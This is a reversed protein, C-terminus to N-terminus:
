SRTPSSCSATPRALECMRELYGAPPVVVGGAGQIPEAVFAAINQAGLEAIKRRSNPARPFRHVPEREDRGAAPVSVAGFPPPHVRGCVQFAAHSRRRSPRRLHRPLDLRPLLEQALHYATELGRRPALSLLARAQHRQGDRVLRVHFLLCPEDRGSRDRRARRRTRDGARQGHGRIFEFVAATAGARGDCRRTRRARLRHQRVVHRRHRRPLAQRQHRHHARGERRHRDAIRRPPLQRSPDM